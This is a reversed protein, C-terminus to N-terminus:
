NVLREWAEREEVWLDEIDSWDLCDNVVASRANRYAREYAELNRATRETLDATVFANIQIKM